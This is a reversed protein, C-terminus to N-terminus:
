EVHMAQIPSLRAARVAPYTGFVLGVFVAAAAAVALTSWSFAAYMPVESLRRLVATIALAGGLGISFGIAGGLGTIAVSEALFQALIDRQRAGAAKRIGIERTREAVAALLVNMIGIGGVLLSIGTIAGMFLKFLLIGRQAQKAREDTRVALREKWAPHRPAIWAQVRAKVVPVLEVSDAIAALTPPRADRSPATVDRAISLPVWATPPMIGASPAAVAVVTVWRGQMRLSDGVLSAIRGPALARALRESLVAVRAGAAVEQGTYWRGASLRLGDNQRANALTGMVYAARPAGSGHEVIATGQQSMAVERVGPIRAIEAADAAGLQPVITDPIFVGDITRGTQPVIAVAQLSTTSAIQSRAFGEMGDGLALVAVLAAVGMIVGLTSLLTRLPNAALSNFGVRISPLM